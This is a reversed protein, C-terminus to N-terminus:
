RLNAGPCLLGVIPAGSRFSDRRGAALSRLLVRHPLGRLKMSYGFATGITCSQETSHLPISRPLDQDRDAQVTHMSKVLYKTSRALDERYASWVLSMTEFSNPLPSARCAQGPISGSEDLPDIAKRPSSGIVHRMIGERYMGRGGMAEMSHYPRSAAADLDEQVRAGSWHTYQLVNEAHIEEVIKRVLASGTSIELIELQFM